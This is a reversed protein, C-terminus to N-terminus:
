IETRFRLEKTEVTGEWLLCCIGEAIRGIRGKVQDVNHLNESEELINEGVFINPNAFLIDMLENICDLCKQWM